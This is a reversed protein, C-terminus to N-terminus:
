TVPWPSLAACSNFISPLPTTGCCAASAKRNSPTRHSETALLHFGLVALAPGEDNADQRLERDALSAVHAGTLFDVLDLRASTAAVNEIREVTSRQAVVAVHEDRRM